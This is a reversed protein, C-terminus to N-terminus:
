VRMISPNFGEIWLTSGPSRPKERPSAGLFQDCYDPLHTASVIGVALSHLFFFRPGSACRLFPLGNSPWLCVSIPRPRRGITPLSGRLSASRTHPPSLPHCTLQASCLPVATPPPMATGPSSAAHSHLRAATFLCNPQTRSPLLSKHRPLEGFCPM